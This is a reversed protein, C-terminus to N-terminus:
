AAVCPRRFARNSHWVRHLIHGVTKARVLRWSWFALAAVALTILLFAPNTAVDRGEAIMKWVHVLTMLAFLVGTTIVYTKMTIAELRRSIAPTPKSPVISSSSSSPFAAASSLPSTCRASTFPSACIGLFVRCWNARLYLGIVPVVFVLAVLFVSLLAIKDSFLAVWSALLCLVISCLLVATAALKAKM